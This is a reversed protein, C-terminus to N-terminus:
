QLLRREQEQRCHRKRLRRRWRRRGLVSRAGVRGPDAVTPVVVVVVVVVIVVVVERALVQGKHGKRADPTSRFSVFIM